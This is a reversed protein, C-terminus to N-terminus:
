TPRGAFNRRYATPSIGMSRSFHRRFAAPSPIGVQQAIDEVSLNTRELLESSAAIRQDTLWRAPSTGTAQAFHRTLSRTSLHAARAMEPVSIRRDLRQLAWEMVRSTPDDYGQRKIPAEIYQAQEGSRHPSVVMRRALRNAVEAGHDRRVLHLCLDICAATGASTLLDGDDIYLVRADVQVAPFLTALQEAYLWHTTARRGDLLGSAALIFTGTCFSVLRAGREHAECLAEVLEPPPDSVFGAGAGPVIVTDASAVAELGHPVRLELGGVAAIGSPEVAFLSLAYPPDIRLDPRRLGFVEVAVGLEFGTMGEYAYVAIKHNRKV